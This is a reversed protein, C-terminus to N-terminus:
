QSKHTRTRSPAAGSSVPGQAAGASPAQAAGARSAPASISNNM